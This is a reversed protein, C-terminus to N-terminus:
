EGCCRRQRSSSISSANASVKRRPQHHDMKHESTCRTCRVFFIEITQQFFLQGLSTLGTSTKAVFLKYDDLSNIARGLRKIYHIGIQGGYKSTTTYYDKVLGIPQKSLWHDLREKTQAFKWVWIYKTSIYKQVFAKHDETMHSMLKHPTRLFIKMHYYVHYKAISSVLNSDKTNKHKTSIGCLYTSVHPM